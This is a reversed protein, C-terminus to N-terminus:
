AETRRIVTGKGGDVTVFEGAVLKKTAGSLGVVAPIGMERAVIASHSLLGGAETVLAGAAWFAASWISSVSTAVIVDGSEVECLLTPNSIIRVKGTHIGASAGRGRLTEMEGVIGALIENQALISVAEHVLRSARPLWRLSPSRVSPRGLEPEPIRRLANRRAELRAIVDPRSAVNIDTCAALLERITFCLTLDVQPLVGAAKLRRGLELALVRVAGLVAAKVSEGEERIHFWRRADDLLARQSTTLDGPVEPAASRGATTGDLIAVLARRELEPLERVTPEDLDYGTLTLGWRRIHARSAALAVEDDGAVWDLTKGVGERLRKEAAPTRSLCNALAELAAPYLARDQAQSRVLALADADTWGLSRRLSSAFRALPILHAFDTQYNSVLVTDLRELAALLLRKLCAGSSVRLDLDAVEGVFELAAPEVVEQWHRVHAAPVGNRLALASARMRRRTRPHLWAILGIVPGPLSPVAVDSLPVVRVYPWGEISKLEISRAFVGYEAFVQASVRCVLPAFISEFLPTLPKPYHVPDLIWNGPPPPTYVSVTPPEMAIPRAQLVLIEHERCGFEVEFERGNHDAISRVIAAVTHLEGRSLLTRDSPTPEVTLDPHVFYRETVTEGSTVGTPSAAVEVVVVNGGTMPDISAAVGYAEAVLMPQVVVAMPEFEQDEFGSRPHASAWVELVAAPLKEVQVDLLSLYRGAQSGSDQDEARASSRVALTTGYGTAADQLSQALRAELMTQRVQRQTATASLHNRTLHDLHEQAALAFGPLAPLGAILLDHLRSAKWGYRGAPCDEPGGLVILEVVRGARIEASVCSVARM